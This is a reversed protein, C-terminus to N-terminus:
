FYICIYARKQARLYTLSFVLSEKLKISIWGLSVLEPGKDYVFSSMPILKGKNKPYGVFGWPCGQGIIFSTGRHSVNKQKNNKKM